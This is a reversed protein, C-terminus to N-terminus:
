MAISSHQTIYGRVETFSQFHTYKEDGEGGGRWKHRPAFQTSQLSRMISLKGVEQVFQLLKGSVLSLLPTLRGGKVGTKGAYEDSREATLQTHKYTFPPSILASNTMQQGWLADSLVAPCSVLFRFCCFGQFCTLCPICRTLNVRQARFYKSSYCLIICQVAIALIKQM